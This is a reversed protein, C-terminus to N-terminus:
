RDHSRMNALEKELKEMSVPIQDKPTKNKDSIKTDENGIAEGVKKWTMLKQPTGRWMTISLEKQKDEM